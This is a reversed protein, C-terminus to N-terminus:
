TTLAGRCYEVLWERVQETLKHPHGHRGDELADEGQLRVIRLARFATARSLHADAAEAAEHWPLGQQMGGVVRLKAARRQEQGMSIVGTWAVLVGTPPLRGGRGLRLRGACYRRPTLEQHHPPYLMDGPQMYQVFLAVRQVGVAGKSPIVNVSVCLNGRGAALGDGPEGTPDQRRYDGGLNEKMYEEVDEQTRTAVEWGHSTLQQRYYSIVSDAPATTSFTAYCDEPDGDDPEPEIAANEFMPFEALAGGSERDCVEFYRYYRYVLTSLLLCGLLAGLQVVAAWRVRRGGILRM